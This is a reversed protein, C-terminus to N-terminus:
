RYGRKKKAAEPQSTEDLWRLLRQEFIAMPMDMIKALSKSPAVTSSDPMAELVSGFLAPEHGEILYSVLAYAILIETDRMSTLSMDMTLELSGGPAERIAKAAASRWPVLKGKNVSAKMKVTPLLGGQFTTRTGVTLESIYHRLGSTVWGRQYTIGYDKLLFLEVASCIATELRHAPKEGYCVYAAPAPIIGDLYKYMKKYMTRTDSPISPCKEVLTPVQGNSELLYISQSEPPEVEKGTLSPLLRWLRYLEKAVKEREPLDSPALVRVFGAEVPDTWAVGWQGEASQVSGKQVPPTDKAYAKLEKELRKRRERAAETEAQVWTGDPGAVLRLAATVKPHGPAAKSLEVIAEHVFMPGLDSRGSELTDMAATIYADNIAALKENGEKVVEPKGAKPERPPAKRTWAGTDRDRRYRLVKRAMSNDPEAELIQRYLENRIRLAKRNQCWDALEKLAELRVGLAADRASEYATVAEKSPDDAAATLWALPARHPSAPVAGALACLPSAALLAALTSLPRITM